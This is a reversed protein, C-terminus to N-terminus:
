CGQGAASTEQAQEILPGNLFMEFSFIIHQVKRQVARNLIDGRDVTSANLTLFVEISTPM